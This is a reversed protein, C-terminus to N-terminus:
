SKSNRINHSRVCGADPINGQHRRSDIMEPGAAKSEKWTVWGARVGRASAAFKAWTASGLKPWSRLARLVGFFDTGVGSALAYPVMVCRGGPGIYELLTLTLNHVQNEYPKPNFSNRHDEDHRPAVFHDVVISPDYALRKGQKRLELCFKLECHWQAGNGRLRRDMRLNGVDSMRVSMNVAKLSDVDRKPGVGLHHNGITRGHWPVKGVILEAGELWRGAEFVNDRGGIGALGPDTELAEITMRAWNARPAADDDVFSLVDGTAVDLARNYAVVVGPQEVLQLRVPLLPAFDQVVSHTELDDKRAVVIVEEVPRLQMTLAALARKLDVPRRYSPIAVTHRM